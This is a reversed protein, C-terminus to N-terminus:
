MMVSGSAYDATSCNRSAVRAAAASFLVAARDKGPSATAGTAGARDAVSERKWERRELEAEEAFHEAIAAEEAEAARRREAALDAKVLEHEKWAKTVILSLSLSLSLSLACTLSLTRAHPPVLQRM